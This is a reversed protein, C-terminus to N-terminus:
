QRTRNSQNCEAIQREYLDPWGIDSRINDPLSDLAAETVRRRRGRVIADRSVIAISAVSEATRTVATFLRESLSTQHPLENCVSM